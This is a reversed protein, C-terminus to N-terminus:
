EQPPQQQKTLFDAVIQEAQEADEGKVAVGPPVGPCASDLYYSFGENVLITEIGEDELLMRVFDADTIKGQFVVKMEDSM